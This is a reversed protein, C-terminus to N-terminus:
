KCILTKAIEYIDGAGLFLVTDGVTANHMFEIIDQPSEGYKSSGIAQSLTLANGADDFYERASFTRYILLNKIPELVQVFDSFLNKTRSYTHPQFVVFLNGTGSISSLTSAIESPHHAYDAFCKAGNIYGLFQMRREVGSFNELGLVISDFPINEIRAVVIAALANFVNHKGVVNLDVHGLKKGYEYVAFSYCGNKVSMDDAFYDANKNSGFTVKGKIKDDYLKVSRVSKECFEDYAAILNEESGYCEMHDPESNLVVGIYPNLYLFNRKYECAETIFYDDGCYHLNHFENDRGGIHACYKKDACKFIHALM